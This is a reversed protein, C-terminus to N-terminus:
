LATGRRLLGLLVERLRLAYCGWLILANGLGIVVAWTQHSPVAVMTVLALLLLLAGPIRHSPLDLPGALAFFHLGVIVAITPALYEPKHLNYWVQVAILIAIGQAANVITFLKRGRAERQEAEPAVPDPPLAEVRRQLRTMLVVLVLTLALPVGVLWPQDTRGLSYMGFAGWACGFTAFVLAGGLAQTLRRKTAM